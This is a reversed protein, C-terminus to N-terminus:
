CTWKGHVLFATAGECGKSGTGYFDGAEVNMFAIGDRPWDSEEGNVVVRAGITYRGPSLPLRELKCHLEGTPGKVNLMSGAYSSYFVFLTEGVSTHLSLGPDVRPCDKGDKTEYSLVFYIDM